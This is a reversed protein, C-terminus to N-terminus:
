APADRSAMGSDRQKEFWRKAPGAILAPLILLDAVLAVVLTAATLGGFLRITPMGSALTVSLGAVIIITTGVLVPGIHHSTDILRAVLSRRGDRQLLFRNLYHTTDDVAIGFAVTLAIVTNFQMGRGLLYLVACTALIPLTNSMVALAGISWNRFAVIMVFLDAFVAFTLSVNLNSITRTGERTTVVTVGTVIVQDGGAAKVAQEVKEILPAMLRTPVEQVAASILTGGSEGFFRSRTAPTM